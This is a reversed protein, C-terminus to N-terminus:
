RGWYSSPYALMPHSGHVAMGSSGFLGLDPRQLPLFSSHPIWVNESSASHDVYQKPEEDSQSHSHRPDAAATKCYGREQDDDSKRRALRDSGRKYKGAHQPEDRGREIQKSPM